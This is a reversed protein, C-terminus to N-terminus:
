FFYTHLGNGVRVCMKIQRVCGGGDPYIATTSAAYTLMLLSISELVNDWFNRFPYCSTHVAMTLACLILVGYSRESIDTYRSVYVALILVRRM